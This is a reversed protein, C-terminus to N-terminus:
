GDRTGDSRRADFNGSSPPRTFQFPKSSNLTVIGDYTGGSGVTGNAFMAPPTDLGIARGDASSPVLDPTIPLSPLDANAATDNTTKADAKLGAIYNSWPIYYVVYYSEAVAGSPLPGGDPETTSYRFRIEATVPDGFLPQYLAIAQNITSEIAAANPDSTISTDFTPNIVLGSGSTTAATMVESNTGTGASNYPRVRYYYKTAPQLRGVIRSLVNGVDLDQYGSVAVKFAPDTSVDIRYGAAGSVPKWSALFSSRTPAM